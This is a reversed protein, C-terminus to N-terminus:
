LSNKNLQEYWFKIFPWDNVMQLILRSNIQYGDDKEMWNGKYEDRFKDGEM